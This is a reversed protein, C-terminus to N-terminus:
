LNDLLWLPYDVRVHMCESLGLSKPKSGLNGPRGAMETILQTQRVRTSSSSNITVDITVTVIYHLLVLPSNNAMLSYLWSEHCRCHISIFSLTVSHLTDNVLSTLVCVVNDTQWSLMLRYDVWSYQMSPRFCRVSDWVSQRVMYHDLLISRMARSIVDQLHM